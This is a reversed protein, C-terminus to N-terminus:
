YEKLRIKDTMFKNMLWESLYPLFMLNAFTNRMWLNFRNKPVFSGAFREAIKQKNEIFPRFAQEYQEFAVHHDGAAKKLEGALIYAGIMALTSGQGSLLSPCDCADGVLSVRGKFWQDMHIQSVADFYFDHSSDMRKILAPAEWGVDSFVERLLEKQAEVDHYDYRLKKPSHFIFFTAFQDKNLSYISIQKGPVTYSLFLRDKKLYNEITFSSTYYGYYKEYQAEDGFVLKRVNSHFGDAGIVLDYSHKSGDTFVVGVNKEAQQLTKISNNFIFDVDNKVRKYIIEELSSRLITYARNKLLIRLKDANLGGLRKNNKDVFTIESVKFDAKALDDLMDMKEAVDVGAGFFDIMYGGERLKPARELIIPNFGHKKLWYALTLGAIGAGSILINKNQM